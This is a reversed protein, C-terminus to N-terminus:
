KLGRIKLKTLETELKWNKDIWPETVVWNTSGNTKSKKKKIFESNFYFLFFRSFFFILPVVFDGHGIGHFSERQENEAWSGYRVETLRVYRHTESRYRNSDSWYDM